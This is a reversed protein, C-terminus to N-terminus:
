RRLLHDPFGGHYVLNLRHRLLPARVEVRELRVVADCLELREPHRDGDRGEPGLELAEVDEEEVVVSNPLRYHHHLHHSVACQIVLPAFDSVLWSLSITAALLSIAPPHKIATKPSQNQKRHAQGSGVVVM